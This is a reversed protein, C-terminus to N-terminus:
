IVYRKRPVTSVFPICELVETLLTLCIGCEGGNDCDTAVDACYNPPPAPSPPLAPPAPPTAPPSPPLVLICDQVTYVDFILCNNLTPDLGCTGAANALCRSGLQSLFSPTFSIHKWSHFSRLHSHFTNGVTFPVRTLGMQLFISLDCVCVYRCLVIGGVGVCVVPVVGWVEL